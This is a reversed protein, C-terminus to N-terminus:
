EFEGYVERYPNSPDPDTPDWGYGPKTEYPGHEILAPPTPPVPGVTRSINVETGKPCNEYIWHADICLMRICGHSAYSGLRNYYSRRMMKMGESQRTATDKIPVSHFLCHKDFRSCYQGRSENLEHYRYQDTIKFKGLPTDWGGSCIMIRVVKWDGDVVQYAVVSQTGGLFM